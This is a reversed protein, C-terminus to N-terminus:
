ASRTLVITAFMGIRANFPSLLREIGRWMRVTGAPTLGRMSVGGSLLYRFPTHATIRDIRWQPVDREFTARDRAFVIWPLAGNAGSLPGRPPLTWQRAGPDFPESHLRRYIVSSWPTVWPEIMALVGGPKVCRAADAFFTRVDRLHHLVNTMVVGRLSAAAFPLRTADAVVAIEPVHQVDSAIVRAVRERLFGPGSGLELIPADGTPVASALSRYWDEYIAKLFPKGDIVARRLTTTHPDDVDRAATAPLALRATVWAGTRTLGM